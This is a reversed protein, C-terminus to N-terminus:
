LCFLHKSVKWQFSSRGPRGARQNTFFASWGATNTFCLLTILLAFNVARIVIQRITDQFWPKGVASWHLFSPPCWSHFGVELVKWGSSHYQAVTNAVSSRLMFRLRANYHQDLFPIFFPTAHQLSWFWSQMRDIRSIMHVFCRCRSFPAPSHPRCFFINGHNLRSHPWTVPGLCKGFSPPIEICNNNGNQTKSAPAPWNTVKRNKEGFISCVLCGHFHRRTRSHMLVFNEFKPIQTAVVVGARTAVTRRPM